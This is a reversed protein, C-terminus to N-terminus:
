EQHPMARAQMQAELEIDEALRVMAYLLVRVCCCM